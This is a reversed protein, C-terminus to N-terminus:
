KVFSSISFTLTLVSAGDVHVSMVRMNNQIICVNQNANKKIEKSKISVEVYNRM